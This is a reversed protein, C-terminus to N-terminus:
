SEFQEAEPFSAESKIEFTEDKEPASVLKWKDGYISKYIIEITLSDINQYFYQALPLNRDLSLIVIEQGPRVIRQNVTSNTVGLSVTDPMDYLRFMAWWHPVVEEGYKMRVDTIIAPGVGDNTLSLSLQTISRDLPSHSKSLSLSLQPWVSAKAHERILQREEQMIQTQFISVVLACLSILTVGIATVNQPDKFFSPTGLRRM